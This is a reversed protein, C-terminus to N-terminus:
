DKFETGYYAKMLTAVSEAAGYLIIRGCGGDRDYRFDIDSVDKMMEKKRDRAIPYRELLLKSLANM